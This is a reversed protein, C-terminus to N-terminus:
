GATPGSLYIAHYRNSIFVEHSHLYDEGLLIDHNTAGSDQVNLVPQALVEGGITMSDFRCLRGHAPLGGIGYSTVRAGCSLPRLGLRDVASQQVSSIGAAGSDILATLARGDLFVTIEHRRSQLTAMPLRAFQGTAFPIMDADRATDFLEIEDHPFDLAIDYGNLVDDGLLGDADDPGGRHHLTAISFAVDIEAACDMKLRGPYSAAAYVGGGVGNIRFSGFEHTVQLRRLADPTLLSTEAGTDVILRVPQGGVSVDVVPEGHVFTVPLDGVDTLQGAPTCGALLCLGLAAIGFKM